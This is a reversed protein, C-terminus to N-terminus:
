IRALRRRPDARVTQALQEAGERLTMTINQILANLHTTSVRSVTGVPVTTADDPENGAISRYMEVVKQVVQRDTMTGELEAYVTNRQLAVLAQVRRESPPWRWRQAIDFKPDNTLAKQM